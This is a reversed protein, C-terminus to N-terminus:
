RGSPAVRLKGDTGRVALPQASGKYRLQIETFRVSGDANRGAPPIGVRAMAAEYSVAIVGLIAGREQPDLAEWLLTPGDTPNPPSLEFAVGNQISAWGVFPLYLQESLSRMLLDTAIDAPIEVRQDLASAGTVPPRLWSGIGIGALLSVLWLAQAATRWRDAKAFAQLVLGYAREAYENLEAGCNSCSDQDLVTVAACQYCAPTTPGTRQGSTVIM